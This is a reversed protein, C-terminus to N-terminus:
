LNIEYKSGQKKIAKIKKKEVYPIAVMGDEISDSIKMVENNPIEIKFQTVDSKKAVENHLYAKEVIIKKEKSVISVITEPTEKLDEDILVELPLVMVQHNPHLLKAIKEEKKIVEQAPLCLIAVMINTALIALAFKFKEKKKTDQTKKIEEQLTSSIGNM